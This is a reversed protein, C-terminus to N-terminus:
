YLILFLIFFYTIGCVSTKVVRTSCDMITSEVTFNWSTFLPPFFISYIDRIIRSIIIPIFYTPILKHDSKCCVDLTLVQAIM